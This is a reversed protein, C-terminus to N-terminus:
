DTKRVQRNLLEKHFYPILDTFRLADEFKNFTFTEYEDNEEYSTVEDYENPIYRDSPKGKYIRVEYHSNSDDKGLFIMLERDEDDVVSLIRYDGKEGNLADEPIFRVLNWNYFLKNKIQM